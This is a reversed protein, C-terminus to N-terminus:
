FDPSVVQVHKIQCQLFRKVRHVYRGTGPKTSCTVPIAKCLHKNVQSHVAVSLSSENEALRCM